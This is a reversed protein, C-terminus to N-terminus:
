GTGTQLSEVQEESLETEGDGIVCADGRQAAFHGTVRNLAVFVEGDESFYTDTQDSPFDKELDPPAEFPIALKELKLLAVLQHISVERNIRLFGAHYLSM